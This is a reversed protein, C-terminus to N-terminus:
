LLSALLGITLFSVSMASSKASFISFNVLTASLSLASAASFALTTSSFVAANFLCFSVNSFALEARSVALFFSASWAILSLKCFATVLNSAATAVSLAAASSAWALNSSTLSTTFAYM